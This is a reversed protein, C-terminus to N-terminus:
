RGTYIAQVIVLMTVPNLKVGWKRLQRYIPHPKVETLFRVSTMLDESSIKEAYVVETVFLYLLQWGGYVAFSFLVSLVGVSCSSSDECVSGSFSSPYWRVAYAVTPPLM